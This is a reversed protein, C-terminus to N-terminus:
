KQKKCDKNSDEDDLDVESGPPNKPTYPLYSGELWDWLMIYQGYNCDPKRHHLDHVAVSYLGPIVIDFRTHNLSALVGGFIVFFAVTYVHCPIVWATVLHLYEGVFFEFPHVNIADLNGRTPAQQRHHHKHILGYISKFHLILHFNAYFFDYFVYFLVLSGLTNALTVESLKWKITPTYYCVWLIHYVFFATMFKNIAIYLNDRGDFNDWHKGMVPIKKTCFLGFILPVIYALLDMGLVITVAFGPLIAYSWNAFDWDEISFTSM